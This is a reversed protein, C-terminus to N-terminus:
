KKLKKLENDLEKISIYRLDLSQNIEIPLKGSVMENIIFVPKKRFWKSYGIEITAGVGYGVCILFDTVENTKEPQNRWTGCNIAEGLDVNVWEKYGLEKDDLPLVEYLKKGKLRIYENGLFELPSKKDPTIVIELNNKVLIETIETLLEKIGAESNNTASAIYKIQSPAIVGVKM